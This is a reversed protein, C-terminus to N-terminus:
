GKLKFDLLALTSAWSIRHYLPDYAIGPAVGEHDPDTFSHQAESFFTIQHTVGAGIMEQQFATFDDMPVFPDRGACFAVVEATVVGPQAPAHTPLIGHYSVVTKVDAGTRALELVCQGGFCYGIAAIRDEDVDPLDRVHEFWEIVRSRLLEPRERLGIYHKATSEPTSLDAGREYMGVGIALYGMDALARAVSEFTPGIGGGGHFMMVTPLPSQGGDPRAIFADLVTGDHECSITEFARM